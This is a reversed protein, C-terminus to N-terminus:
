CNLKQRHLQSPAMILTLNIPRSNKDLNKDLNKDIYIKLGDLKIM